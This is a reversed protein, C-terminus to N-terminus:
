LRMSKYCAFRLRRLAQINNKVEASVCSYQNELFGRVCISRSSSPSVKINSSLKQKPYVYLLKTKTETQTTIKVRKLQNYNQM